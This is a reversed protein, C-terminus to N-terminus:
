QAGRTAKRTSGCTEGIRRGEAASFCNVGDVFQGHSSAAVPLLLVSMNEAEVSKGASISSTSGGVSGEM